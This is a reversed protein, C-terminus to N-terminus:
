GTMDAGLNLNQGKQLLSVRMKQRRSKCYDASLVSRKAEARGFGAASQRDHSAMQLDQSVLRNQHPASIILGFSVVMETLNVHDRRKNELDHLLLQLGHRFFLPCLEEPFPDKWFVVPRVCLGFHFCGLDQPCIDANLPHWTVSVTM